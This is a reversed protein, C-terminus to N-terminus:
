AETRENSAKRECDDCIGIQVTQATPHRVVVYKIRHCRECWGILRM